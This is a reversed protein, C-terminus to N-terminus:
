GTPQLDLIKDLTLLMTSRIHDTTPNADEGSAIAKTIAHRAIHLPLGVFQEPTSTCLTSGPARWRTTSRSTSATTLTRPTSMPGHKCSSNSPPTYTTRHCNTKSNPSTVSHKPTNQTGPSTWGPQPPQGSYGTM